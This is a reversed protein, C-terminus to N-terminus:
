KVTSVAAPAPTPAIAGISSDNRVNDAEWDAAIRGRKTLTTVIPGRSVIAESDAASGEAEIADIRGEDIRVRLLGNVVRQQPIWATALGYGADRATAAIDSALARLEEPALTRGAYREVVLAFASPPLATAGDVRIAGITM